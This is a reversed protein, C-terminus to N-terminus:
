LGASMMPESESQDAKLLNAENQSEPNQQIAPITSLKGKSKPNLEYLLEMINLVKQRYIKKKKLTMKTSSITLLDM